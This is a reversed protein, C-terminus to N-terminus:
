YLKMSNMAPAENTRENSFTNECCSVFYHSSFRFFFRACVCVCVFCSCQQNLKFRAFQASSELSSMRRWHSKALASHQTSHRKGRSYIVCSVTSITHSESTTSIISFVHANRSFHEHKASHPSTLGILHTIIGTAMPTSSSSHGGAEDFRRVSASCVSM